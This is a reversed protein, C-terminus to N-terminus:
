ETKQRQIVESRMQKMGANRIQTIENRVAIRREDDPPMEGM